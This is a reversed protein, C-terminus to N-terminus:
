ENRSDYSTSLKDQKRTIICKSLVICLESVITVHSLYFVIQYIWFAIINDQNKYETQLRLKQSNKLNKRHM